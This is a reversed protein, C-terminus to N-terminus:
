NVKTTPACTSVGAGVVRFPTNDLFLEFQNTEIDYRYIRNDSNVTEFTFFYGGWHAFAWANVDGGVGPLQYDIAVSGTKKDIESIHQQKEGPSFSYLKALGTGTLEPSQEYNFPFMALPTYSMNSTDIRGFRGSSSMNGIFLSDTTGGVSDLSFAMGFTSLGSGNQRFNTIRECHPDSIKVKYLTSDNYLVWANAERDVAMSFPTSLSDSCNLQFLVTLYQGNPAGPDFKILRYSTDVLYIFQADKPCNDDYCVGDSCKGAQCTKVKENHSGDEACQYVTDGSCYSTGPICVTCGFGDSCLSKDPNTSCDEAYHYKKDLCRIVRNGECYLGENEDCEIDEMGPVMSNDSIDPNAKSSGPGPNEQPNQPPTDGTGANGPQGEDENEDDVPKKPPNNKPDDSDKKDTNKGSNKQSDSASPQSGLSLSSSDECGAAILFLFCLSAFFVSSRM